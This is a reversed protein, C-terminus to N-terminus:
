STASSAIQSLIVWPLDPIVDVTVSLQGFEKSDLRFVYPVSGFGVAERASSRWCSHFTLGFANATQLTSQSRGANLHAGGIVAFSMDHALQASVIVGEGPELGLDSNIVTVVTCCTSPSTPPQFFWIYTPPSSLGEPNTHVVKFLVAHLSIAVFTATASEHAEYIASGDAYTGYGSHWTVGTLTNSSKGTWQVMADDVYGYGSSSFDGADVLDISAAGRAVDGELTSSPSVYPSTAAQAADIMTWDVNNTTWEIM